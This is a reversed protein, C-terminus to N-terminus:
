SDENPVERLHKDHQQRLNRRAQAANIVSVTKVPWGCSCHGSQYFQGPLREAHEYSLSHTTM